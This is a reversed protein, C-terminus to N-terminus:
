VKASGYNGSGIHPHAGRVIKTKVNAAKGPTNIACRAPEAL